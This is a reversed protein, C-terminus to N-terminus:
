ISHCSYSNCFAFCKETEVVWIFHHLAGLDGQKEMEALSRSALKQAENYCCQPTLHTLRM